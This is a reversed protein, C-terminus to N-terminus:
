KDEKKIPRKPIAVALAGIAAVSAVVAGIVWFTDAPENEANTKEANPASYPANDKVVGPDTEVPGRGIGETGEGGIMDSALSGATDGLEELGRSISDGIGSATGDGVGAAGVRAPKAIFLTAFMVATLVASCAIRFADAAKNKDTKM